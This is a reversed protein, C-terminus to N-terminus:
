PKPEYVWLRGVHHRLQYSGLIADAMEDTCRLWPMYYNRQIDMPIWEPLGLDVPWNYYEEVDWEQIILGYEKNIIGNILLTPDLDGHRMAVSAYGPRHLPYRDTLYLLYFNESLIKSDVSNIDELVVEYSDRLDRNPATWAAFSPLGIIQIILLIPIALQILIGGSMSTTITKNGVRVRIRSKVTDLKSLRWVLIPVLMTTVSLVELSYNYWTGARGAIVAFGLFALLFYFVLVTSVEKSEKFRVLTLMVMCSALILIIWHDVVVNRILFITLPLYIPFVTSVGLVSDIFSGNTLLQFIGLLGFGSTLLAFGFQLMLKRNTLLLYLGVALPAAIFHQKTFVALIFPIVSWLVKRSGIYKIALYFGLLTLCLALTDPKFFLSWARTVPPVFFLIGGILGFWKSGTVQRVILFVLGGSVLCAILALLRGVLLSVGFMKFLGGVVAFYLPPYFNRYYPSQSAAPYIQELSSNGMQNSIWLNWGEGHEFPYPQGLSIIAQHIYIAFIVLGVGLLGFWLGKLVKDSLVLERLNM